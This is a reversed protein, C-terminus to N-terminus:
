RGKQNAAENIEDATVEASAIYFEQELPSLSLIHEAPIGKELYYHM